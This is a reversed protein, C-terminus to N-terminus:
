ETRRWKTEEDTRDTVEGDGNTHPEEEERERERVIGAGPGLGGGRWNGEDDFFEHMNEATIWGGSGPMPPPLGDLSEYAIAADDGGEIDAAASSSPSVPDPHLNACASVASFLAQIPPDSPQTTAPGDQASAAGSSVNSPAPILTFDRTGDPDHDDFGDSTVIQM